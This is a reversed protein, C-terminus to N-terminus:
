FNEKKPFSLYWVNRLIGEKDKEKWGTNMLVLKDMGYKELMEKTIMGERKEDLSVDEIPKILGKSVLRGKIWRGLFQEDGLAVFQKGNDGAVCAKFEKGDDTLVYFWKGARPYGRQNTVKKSVMIQIEWWSRAKEGKRPPLGYCANLNSKTYNGRRDNFKNKESPVKLPILFRNKPKFKYIQKTKTEEKISEIGELDKEEIENIEEEDGLIEQEDEM